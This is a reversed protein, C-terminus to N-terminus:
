IPNIEILKLAKKIGHVALNYEVVGIKIFDKEDFYGEFYPEIVISDNYRNEFCIGKFRFVAGWSSEHISEKIVEDLRYYLFWEKPDSGGSSNKRKYFNGELKKFEPYNEELLIDYEEDSLDAIQQKLEDKKIQIKDLRTM